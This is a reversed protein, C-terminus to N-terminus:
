PGSAHFRTRYAAQRCANSCYGRTSRSPKEVPQGCHRCAVKLAARRREREQARKALHKALSERKSEDRCTESCLRVPAPAIFPAGCRVCRKLRARHDLAVPMNSGAAQAEANLADEIRWITRDSIPVGYLRV